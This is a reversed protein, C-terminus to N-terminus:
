HTVAARLAALVERWAGPVPPLKMSHTESTRHKAWVEHQIEVVREEGLIGRLRVLEDVEAPDLGPISIPKSM